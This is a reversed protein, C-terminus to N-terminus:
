ADEVTKQLVVAFFGDTSSRHPWLRFVGEPRFAAWSAPLAVGQRSLVQDAPVVQFGPVRALFAALQDENESRQTSCTAYVLRGGPAV